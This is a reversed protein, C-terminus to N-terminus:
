GSMEERLDAKNTEIMKRLREMDKRQDVSVIVETIANSVDQVDAKLLL